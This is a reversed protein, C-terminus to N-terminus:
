PELHGVGAGAYGLIGPGPQEGSERLDVRRYLALMTSGPQAKRDALLKALQHAAFDVDVAARTLAASKPERNGETDQMAALGLDDRVFVARIGIDPTGASWTQTNKQGLVIM